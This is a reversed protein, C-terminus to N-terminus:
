NKYHYNFEKLLKGDNKHERVEKLRGADDYLYIERIGSPPTISRVGILPDYTYTTIQYALLNDRFNKFANLLDTEDNNREASADTNSANVISDILSQNIDSLKAGMIRAIPQSQTYGWIISVPIGDKTTYQVLNGNSDYKDYSVETTGVLPNQLEYSLISTPFLTAPDDYKTETKSVISGSDNLNKKQIVSTELPIEVVNANILKQNGKDYAYQYTTLSLSEDPLLRNQTKLQYHNTTGYTNTVTNKIEKNSFYEKTTSSELLYPTCYIKSYHYWSVAGGVTSVYNNVLLPNSSLSTYQNTTERIKAGESYDYTKLLRGRENDKNVYQIFFNKSYLLPTVNDSIAPIKETRYSLVDPNTNYDTFHYKKYLKGNELESIESYSINYSSLSNISINNAYELLTNSQFITNGVWTQAKLYDVMRYENNLVGSSGGQNPEAYNTIYKYEKVTTNQGDFNSLKSIRAGGVYGNENRLTKFFSGSYDRVVKKGYSNPEYEFITYGGTPYTLMKLLSVNYLSLNPNRTDGIIQLDGTDTNLQYSPILKNTTENKGNWYGWFDVGLTNPSPLNNLNYYDLSYKKGSQDQIGSLFRYSGSSLYNFTFKKINNPTSNPTNNPYNINVEDLLYMDFEPAAFAVTTYKFDIIFKGNFIIQEPIVKKVSSFTRVPQQYNSSSGGESILNGNLTYSQLSNTQSYHVNVDFLFQFTKFHTKNPLSNISKCFTNGMGIFGLKKNKIELKEGNTYQVEYLNWSNIYFNTNQETNVGGQSGLGYNVELNEHQGGFLYKTGKGDTIVIKSFDPTCNWNSQLSVEDLSIKLNSDNSSIVPKGDNGIYFYGSNGFFNFSFKDPKLEAQVNNVILNDSTGNLRPYAGNYINLNSNSANRVTYLFGHTINDGVRDDAVGNVQRTVSGGFNLLWNYGVYNNKKAPIFGSSNYNLSISFENNDPLAHSFLPLAVDVSGTNLNVPINGYREFDLAQPSKINLLTAESKNQAGLINYILIVGIIIQKRKM